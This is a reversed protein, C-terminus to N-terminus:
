YNQIFKSLYEIHGLGIFLIEGEALRNLNYSIKNYFYEYKKFFKLRNQFRLDYYDKLKEDIEFLM